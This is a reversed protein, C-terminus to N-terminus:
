AAWARCVAPPAHRERLIRANQRFFRDIRLGASRLRTDAHDSRCLALKVYSPHAGRQTVSPRMLTSLKSCLFRCRNSPAHADSACRGRGCRCYCAPWSAWEAAWKSSSYKVTRPAVTSSRSLSELTRVQLWRPTRAGSLFRTSRPTAARTSADKSRRKCRPGHLLSPEFLLRPLRRPLIRSLGCELHLIRWTAQVRGFATSRISRFEASGGAVREQCEYLERGRGNKTLRAELHRKSANQGSM